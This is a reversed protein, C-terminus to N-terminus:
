KVILRVLCRAVTSNVSSRTQANVDVMQLSQTSSEPRISSGVMVALLAFLQIRGHHLSAIVDASLSILLLQLACPQHGICRKCNKSRPLIWHLAGSIKIVISM